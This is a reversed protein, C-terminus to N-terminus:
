KAFLRGHRNNLQMSASIKRVPAFFQVNEVHWADKALCKGTYTESM